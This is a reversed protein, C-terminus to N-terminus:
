TFLEELRGTDEAYDHETDRSADDDSTDKKPEETAAALLNGEM